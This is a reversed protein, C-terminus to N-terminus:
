TDGIDPSPLRMNVRDREAACRTMTFDRDPRFPGITHLVNVEEIAKDCDCWCCCCQDDDDDDADDDDQARHISYAPSPARAPVANVDDDEEADHAPASTFM